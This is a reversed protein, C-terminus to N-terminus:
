SISISFFCMKNIKFFIFDDKFFDKNLYKTLSIVTKLAIQKKLFKRM